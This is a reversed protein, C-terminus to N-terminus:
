GTKNETCYPEIPGQPSFPNSFTVIGSSYPAITYLQYYIVLGENELYFASPNFNKAIQKAYDDFYYNNGSKIQEEAQRIAEEKLAQRYNAKKPYFESLPMIYGSKLDWTDSHRVTIGHAGGTYEYLDYYISLTCNKNYPTEYAMVADFPRFPFGNEDAYAKEELASKYLADTCYDLFVYAARRYFRNIRPLCEECPGKLIEPYKITIKILVVSDRSLNKEIIKTQIVTSQQTDQM